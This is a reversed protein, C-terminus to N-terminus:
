FIFIQGSLKFRDRSKDRPQFDFKSGRIFISRREERIKRM